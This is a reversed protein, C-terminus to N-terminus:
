RCARTRLVVIPYLYHLRVSRILREGPESGKPTTGSADEGETKVVESGDAAEKAVGKEKAEARLRKREQVEASRETAAAYSGSHADKDAYLKRKDGVHKKLDKRSFDSTDVRQGGSKGKGGKGKGKGKGRKGKGGKGKGKKNGKGGKGGQRKRKKDEGGGKGGVAAPSDSM